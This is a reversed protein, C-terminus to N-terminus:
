VTGCPGSAAARRESSAASPATITWLTVAPVPRAGAFAEPAAQSVVHHDHRDSPENLATLPSTSGFGSLGFGAVKRLPSTIIGGM